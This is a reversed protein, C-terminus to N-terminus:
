LIGKQRLLKQYLSIIEKHFRKIQFLDCVQQRAEMGMTQSLEPDNLINLIATGLQVHNLRYPKRLQGTPGDVVLQPIRGRGTEFPESPDILLGTKGHTIIEPIGDVNTAIAPIGFYGAEVLVSGFPERVSALVFLDTSAYFNAVETQNLWFKVYDSIQLAEALKILEDRAPGDGVIWFEVDKRLNLVVPIAILLSDVGKIPVLRCITTIIKKGPPRPVPTSVKLQNFDIGYYILCIKSPQYGLKKQLMTRGAKSLAIAADVTKFNRQINTQHYWSAGQDHEIIIKIGAKKLEAKAIPWPQHFHAIEIKSKLAFRVLQKIWKKETAQSYKVNILNLKEQWYPTIPRSSFVYFRFHKVPQSLFDFLRTQIGGIENLRTIHLVRITRM